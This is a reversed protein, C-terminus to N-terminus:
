LGNLLKFSRLSYVTSAIKKVIYLYYKPKMLHENTITKCKIDEHM